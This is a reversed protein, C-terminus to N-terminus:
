SQGRQALFFPDIVTPALDHAERVPPTRYDLEGHAWMQFRCSATVQQLWSRYQVGHRAARQAVLQGADLGVRAAITELDADTLPLGNLM